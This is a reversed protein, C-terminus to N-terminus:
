KYEIPRWHTVKDEITFDPHGTPIYLRCIWGSSNHWACVIDDMCGEIAVLVLKNNEPMREEVSIWRLKEEYENNCIGQVEEVLQILEIEEENRGFLKENQLNYIELIDKATKM